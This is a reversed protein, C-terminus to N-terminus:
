LCYLNTLVPESARTLHQFLNVKKSPATLEVNTLEAPDALYGPLPAPDSPTALHSAPLALPVPESATPVAPTRYTKLDM